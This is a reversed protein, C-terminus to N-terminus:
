LLEAGAPTNGTNGPTVRHPGTVGTRTTGTVWERPHTVGGGGGRAGSEVDFPTVGLYPKVSTHLVSRNPGNTTAVYGGVVLEKIATKINATKGSVESIIRNGTPPSDAEALYASVREMIETPRWDQSERAEAPPQSLTVQLGDTGDVSVSATLQLRNKDMPGSRPRVYGHRDKAVYLALEGVQGRGLPSVPMCLYAAGTISAMKAQGGIAFRGGDPGKAVHDIQVVAAGTREAILRPLRNHWAAVDDNGGLGGTSRAKVPAQLLAETVGDIVALGYRQGMLVDFASQTSESSGFDVEPRLYDICGLGDRTLGMLRLREVVSGPDAEYDLYLVRNGAEAQFVAEAQAVMSKGSESEGHLSHTMGPYLLGVGDERLLLTATPPEHDGNYFDSLDIPDWGGDSSGMPQDREADEADNLRKADRRARDRDKADLLDYSGKFLNQKAIAALLGQPDGHRLSRVIRDVGGNNEIFSAGMRQQDGLSVSDIPSFDDEPKM